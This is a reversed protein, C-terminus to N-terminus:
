LTVHYAPLQLIGRPEVPIQIGGTVTALWHRVGWV